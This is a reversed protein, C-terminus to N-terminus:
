KSVSTPNVKDGSFIRGESNCFFTGESTPFIRGESTPFIRGETTRFFTGESNCFFTSSMRLNVLAGDLLQFVYAVLIKGVDTKEGGIIKVVVSFYV